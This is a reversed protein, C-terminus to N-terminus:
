LGVLETICRKQTNDAFFSFRDILLFFFFETLTVFRAKIRELLSLAADINGVGLEARVM